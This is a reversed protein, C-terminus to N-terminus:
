AAADQERKVWASTPIGFEEEIRVALDLSPKKGKHILEFAYSRSLAFRERLVDAQLDTIKPAPKSM